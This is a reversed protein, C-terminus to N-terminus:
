TEGRGAPVKGDKSRVNYHRDFVEDYGAKGTAGCQRCEWPRTSTLADYAGYELETGKCLPCTDDEDEYAHLPPLDDAEVAPLIRQIVALVVIVDTKALEKAISVAQAKAKSSVYKGGVFDPTFNVDNLADIGVSLLIHLANRFAAPNERYQQKLREFDM